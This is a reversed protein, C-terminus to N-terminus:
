GVFAIILARRSWSRRLIEANTEELTPTRAHEEDSDVVAANAGTKTPDEITAM